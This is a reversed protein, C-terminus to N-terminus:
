PASVKRGPLPFGLTQLKWRLWRQVAQKRKKGSEWAPISDNVAAVEDIIDFPLATRNGTAAFFAGIACHAGHAHLRGHILEDQDRVANYIAYYATGNYIAPANTGRNVEPRIASPM